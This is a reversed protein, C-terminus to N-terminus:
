GKEVQIAVRSNSANLGYNPFLQKLRNRVTDEDSSPSAAVVVTIVSQQQPATSLTWAEFHLLREVGEVHELADRLTGQQLVTSAADPEVQMLIKGSSVILPIASTMILVSIVASSIPDAITYGTYKVIVSSAIVGLSGLLDAVIHLYVGRMNHDYHGHCAHPTTTTTVTQMMKANKQRSEPTMFFCILM